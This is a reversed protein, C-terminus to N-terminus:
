YLAPPAQTHLNSWGEMEGAKNPQSLAAPAKTTHPLLLLLHVFPHTLRVLGLPPRYM